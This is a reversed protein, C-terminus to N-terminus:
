FGRNASTANEQAYSRSYKGGGTGGGVYHDLYQHAGWYLGPQDTIWPGGPHAEPTGEIGAEYSPVLIRTTDGRARIADVVGTTMDEWAKGDTAFSGKAIGKKGSPENMLDYMFVKGKLESSLKRWVDVFASKPLQPSGLCLKGTGPVAPTPDYAGGADCGGESNKWYGGYNHLDAIVKLGAANANAVSEKYKVMEEQDIPGYLESQMREWRFGLRVHTVGRSALYEFSNMGDHPAPAETTPYHYDGADDRTGPNAASHAGEEWRQAGSFNVGRFYNPTSLHREVVRAQYGEKTLALPKSGAPLGSCQLNGCQMYVSAFYGGTSTNAYRESTEQVTVNLGAADARRMWTEALINFEDEDAYTARSNELNQPWGFEGIYGEAGDLWAVYGRLEALSEHTLADDYGGHGRVDRGDPVGDLDTDKPQTASSGSRVLAYDLFLADPGDIGSAEIGVTAGAPVNLPQGKLVYSTQSAGICQRTGKLVGDIRPRFCVRSTSAAANRVNLYLAEGSGPQTRAKYARGNGDFRIASATKATNSTGTMDEGQLKELDAAFTTGTALSLAATLVALAAASKILYRM